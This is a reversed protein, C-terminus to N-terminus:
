SAPAVTSFSSLNSAGYGIGCRTHVNAGAALLVHVVGEHEREVAWFLPNCRGGDFAHVDAGKLLLYSVVKVQGLAAAVHLPTDGNGGVWDRTALSVGM